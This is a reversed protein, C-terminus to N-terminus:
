VAQAHKQVNPQNALYPDFASAVLRQFLRGKPQLILTHGDLECLGDECYVMVHDLFPQLYQCEKEHKQCIEMLDVQGYCMFADIIASHFYDDRQLTYGRKIPIHNGLVAEQYERLATTNQAYGQEFRSIGSIGFALLTEATDTTYGQFNRRLTKNKLAEAMPDNPLVFHDMGIPVYGEQLLVEEATEFMRARELSNPLGFEELKKQHPRMWPVHAYGFLSIRQPRWKVVKQATEKMTSVTQRPLGYILDMNISDINQEKLVAMTQNILDDPQVRGIAEQVAPNTDQVGISIRNFGEYALTFVMEHKLTRPDAEIAIECNSTRGFSKDIAEFLRAMDQTELITPTGGGFHISSVRRQRGLLSATNHIEKILTTVYQSVPKYHGAVRTFCGCYGCMKMCFPIHIYLSVPKDVPTNKLWLQVEKEEISEHFHNATPYSTYRPIQGNYKQILYEPTSM